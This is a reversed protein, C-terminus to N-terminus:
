RMAEREQRAARLRAIRTPDDETTVSLQQEEAALAADRRVLEAALQRRDAGAAGTRGFRFGLLVVLSWGDRLPTRQEVFVLTLQPWPFVPELLHRTALPPLEPLRLARGPRGALTPPAGGLVVVDGDVALWVRDGLVAVAGASGAFPTSQEDWAAGDRSAFVGAGAAIFRTAGGGGCTVSRVPPRDAVREPPTDGRWIWVGDDALALAVGDCIALADSGHDLVVRAVGFPGIEVVDDDSAVLTHEADLVALARPRAVLGAAVHFAGGRDSRWLLEATAAAVAGGGAAVAVVDRGPLGARACGGGRGRYLGATTAVWVDDSAPSAALARAIIASEPQSARTRRRPGLGEDELADEADASDPDDDPLGALRLAEDADVAPPTPSRTPGPPPAEFRACRDTERGADDFSVVRNARLAFLRRAGAVLATVREGGTATADPAQAHGHRAQARTAGASAAAVALLATTLHRTRATPM